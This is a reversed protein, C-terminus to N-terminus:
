DALSDRGQFHSSDRWSDLRIKRSTLVGEGLDEAEGLCGELPLLPEEWGSMRIVMERRSLSCAGELGPSKNTVM